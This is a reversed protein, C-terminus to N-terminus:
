KKLCRLFKLIRLTKLVIFSQYFNTTLLIVQMILKKLRKIEKNTNISEFSIEYTSTINLHNNLTLRISSKDDNKKFINVLRETHNNDFYKIIQYDEKLSSQLFTYLAWYLSSKGSGNEGYILVNKSNFELTEAGKFFKFNELTIDKIKKM